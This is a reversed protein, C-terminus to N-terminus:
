LRRVIVIRPIGQLDPRVDALAWVRSDILREVASLQDFGIEMLLHGGFQLFPPSDRLLRRIIELGDGGPTLAVRPEHDRVERQLTALDNEPVYPPNSVIMSFRTNSPDLAIFCDSVILTMREHVEHWEANRKAIAIAAPSIDLAFARADKRMWLISIAICGSGTGVDCVLPDPFEELLKLAAEVLLETEPRPILVDPTVAFTLGYFDQQGTIYQLPEGSARRRVFSEFKRWDEPRLIRGAHTIQATRDFLTIHTLLSSADRHAEPIGAVRLVNAGNKLAQAITIDSSTEQEKM